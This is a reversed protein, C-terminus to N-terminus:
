PGAHDGVETHPAPVEQRWPPIRAQVRCDARNGKTADHRNEVESGPEGHTGDSQDLMAASPQPRCVVSTWLTM